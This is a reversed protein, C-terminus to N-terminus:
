DTGLWGAAALVARAEHVFATASDLEARAVDETLVLVANYDADHRLALLKAMTAGSKASLKGNRVFERQLLQTLGSHTKAEIGLTLLLGRAYHFTAYYGRSVADAYKGARHLIEASDLLDDGKAVEDAINQRQNDKTM